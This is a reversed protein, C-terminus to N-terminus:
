SALRTQNTIELGILSGPHFSTSQAGSSEVESHGRAEVYVRVCTSM